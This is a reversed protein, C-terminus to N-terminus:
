LRLILLTSDDFPEMEGRFDQLAGFIGDAIRSPEWDSHRAVFDYLREEGFEEYDKNCCETVGDTYLVLLDGPCYPVVHEQYQLDPFIGLPSGKASLEVIEKEAMRYLLQRNHGASGIRMRGLERELQVLMVTVFLGSESSNCIEQNTQTLSTVPDLNRPIVGSLLTKSYEMFLAAPVGKGAVDAIVLSIRDESHYLLDYFDGGVEKCAEYRTAVKMGAVTAPIKRLSSLQIKTATELDKRYNQLEIERQHSEIRACGDAIQGAVTTLVRLEFYDFPRGDKKDAVNLVGVVQGERLMPVSIFSSTKYEAIRVRNIRLDKELDRVLLPDGSRIVIGLIGEDPNVLLNDDQLTFGLSKALRMQEGERFLVSIRTADLVDGISSLAMELLEDITKADQTSSSITYICNLEEMRATVDELLQRNLISLAAMNALYTLLRTDSNIFDRQDTTNVVELVGIMNGRALMPVALLNRTQFDIDQDVKRFIRPDNLADNVIVPRKELACIGAIGEGVPIRKLELLEGKHGRAVDFILEETQPDYLLLSAAETRLLDKATDMIVALLDQLDTSSNIQVTIENIKALTLGKTAQDM